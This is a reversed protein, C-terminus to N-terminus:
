TDVSCYLTGQQGSTNDYVQTQDLQANTDGCTWHYPEWYRYPWEHIHKEIVIPRLDYRSPFLELLCNRLAKAKEPSLELTLEDDIKIRLKDITVKDM